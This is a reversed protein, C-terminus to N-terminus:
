EEEQKKYAYDLYTCYCVTAPITVALICLFADM